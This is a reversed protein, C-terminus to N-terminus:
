VKVLVAAPDTFSVSRLLFFTLALQGAGILVLFYNRRSTQNAANQPHADITPTLARKMTRMMFIAMSSGTFLKAALFLWSGLSLGALLSVNLGVYKYGSYAVLDLLKPATVDTDLIYFGVRLVLLEMILTVFTFSANVTLVEPSFRGVTGLAYGMLLIFTIFAMSPIYLDPANVDERPTRYIQQQVQQPDDAGELHERKWNKHLCPLLLIKFKQIVYENNVHFYYKLVHLRAISFWGMHKSAWERGYDIGIRAIPNSALDSPSMMSSFNPANNNNSNLQNNHSNTNSSSARNHLNAQGANNNNDWGQGAWQASGMQGMQGMPANNPSGSAPLNVGYDLAPNAADDVYGQPQQQDEVPQEEQPFQPEM